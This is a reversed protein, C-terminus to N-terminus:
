QFLVFKVIMLINLKLGHTEQHFPLGGDHEDSEVRKMPDKV